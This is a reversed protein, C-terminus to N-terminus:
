LREGPATALQRIQDPEATSGRTPTLDQEEGAREIRKGSLRM